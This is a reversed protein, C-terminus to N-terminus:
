PERIQSTSVCADRIIEFCNFYIESDSLWALSNTSTFYQLKTLYTPSDWSKAVYRAFFGSSIPFPSLLQSLIVSYYYLIPWKRILRLVPWGANSKQQAQFYRCVYLECVCVSQPNFSWLSRSAQRHSLPLPPKLM